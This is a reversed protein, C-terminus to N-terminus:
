VIRLSVLYGAMGYISIILIASILEQPALGALLNEYFRFYNIIVFPRLGAIFLRIVDMILYIGIGIGVLGGSTELKMALIFVYMNFAMIPIISIFHSFLTWIIGHQTSLAKQGIQFSEGWGFIFTGSIYSFVLSSLLLIGLIIGLSLFKGTLYEKRSVPHILSLKFTGKVLEETIMDGILIISFIPLLFQALLSLNDYAFTQGTLEPNIIGMLSLVISFIIHGFVLALFIYIKKQNFVKVLENKILGIM